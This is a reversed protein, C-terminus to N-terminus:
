ILLPYKEKVNVYECLPFSNLKSILNKRSIKLIKQNESGLYKALGMLSNSGIRPENNKRTEFAKIFLYDLESKSHAKVKKLFENMFVIRKAGINKNIDIISQKDFQEKTYTLGRSIARNIISANKIIENQYYDIIKYEIYSHLTELILYILDKAFVNYNIESIILVEFNDIFSYKQRYISENKIGNIYSTNIADLKEKVEKYIKNYVHDEVHVFIEIEYLSLDKDFNSIAM